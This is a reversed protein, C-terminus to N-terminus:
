SSARVDPDAHLLLTLDDDDRNGRGRAEAESTERTKELMFDRVRNPVLM